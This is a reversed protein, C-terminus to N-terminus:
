EKGSVRGTKESISEVVTIGRFDKRLKEPKHLSRSHINGNIKGDIDAKLFPQQEQCSNQQLSVCNVVMSAARTLLSFDAVMM